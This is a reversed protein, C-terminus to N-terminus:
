TSANNEDRTRRAASLPHLNHMAHANHLVERENRRDPRVVNEERQVEEPSHEEPFLAGLLDQLPGPELVCDHAGSTQLIFQFLLVALALDHHGARVGVPQRRPLLRAADQSLLDSTRSSPLM